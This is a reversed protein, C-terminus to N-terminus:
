FGTPSQRSKCDGGALSRVPQEQEGVVEPVKEQAEHAGVFVEFGNGASFPKQKDSGAEDFTGALALKM